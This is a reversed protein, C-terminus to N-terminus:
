VTTTFIDGEVQFIKKGDAKKVSNIVKGIIIQHDGAEIEDVVECEFIGLSEKVRPCEIKDCEERTLGTERFKDIVEGSQRGCFLVEKKLKNPLFNVAFVGSEKILGYSYREKSISIAYLFPDFSVPMHWSLTILNDKPQKDKSFRSKIVARTSVLAVIRPYAIHREAM